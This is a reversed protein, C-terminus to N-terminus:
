RNQFTRKESHNFHDLPIQVSIPGVVADVVHYTTLFSFGVLTIHLSSLVLGKALFTQM